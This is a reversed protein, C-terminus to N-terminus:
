RTSKLECNMEACKEDDVELCREIMLEDVMEVDKM